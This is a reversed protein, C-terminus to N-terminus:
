ADEKMYKVHQTIETIELYKTDTYSSAGKVEVRAYVNYKQLSAWTKNLAAVDKNFQKVLDTVKPDKM